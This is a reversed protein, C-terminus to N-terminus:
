GNKRDQRAVLLTIRRGPHYQRCLSKEILGQIGALLIDLFIQLAVETAARTIIGDDGGDVLKQANEPSDVTIFVVICGTDM